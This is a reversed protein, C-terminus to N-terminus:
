TIIVLLYNVKKANENDKTESEKEEERKQVNEEEM